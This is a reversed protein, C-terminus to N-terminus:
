PWAWGRLSAPEDDREGGIGGVGVAAKERADRQVSGVLAAEDLWGAAAPLGAICRRRDQRVALHDRELTGYRHRGPWKRREDIEHREVGRAGLAPESATM